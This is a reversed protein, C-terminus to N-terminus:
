VVETDEKRSGLLSKGRQDACPAENAKDCAAQDLSTPPFGMQFASACCNALQLCEKEDSSSQSWTKRFEECTGSSEPTLVWGSCDADSSDPVWKYKDDVCSVLLTCGSPCQFSSPVDDGGGGCGQLLLCTPVAVVGILFLSTKM